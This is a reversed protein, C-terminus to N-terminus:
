LYFHRSYSQETCIGFFNELLVKRNSVIPILSVPTCQLASPLLNNLLDSLLNVGGNVENLAASNCCANVAGQKCTITTSSGTPNATAVLALSLAATISQFKM